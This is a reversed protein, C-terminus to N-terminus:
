NVGTGEPMVPTGGQWLIAHSSGDSATASGVVQSLDNLAALRVPSLYGTPPELKTVTGPNPWFADYRVLPQGNYPGGSQVWGIVQGKNNIHEGVTYSGYYGISALQVITNDKSIHSQHGRTGPGNSEVVVLVQSNDNVAVATSYGDGETFNGNQWIAVGCGDRGGGLCAYGVAESNNNVGYATSAFTGPDVKTVQADLNTVVGRQWMFAHAYGHSDYSAGVVQGHDNFGKAGNPWPAGLDTLTYKPAPNGAASASLAGVGSSVLLALTALLATVLRAKM